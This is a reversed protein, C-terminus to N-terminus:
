HRAGKICGIWTDITEHSCAHKEKNGVIERLLSIMRGALWLINAAWLGTRGYFKAFYLARAEYFYRPRRKRQSTLTKVPSSGGRLHVVRADPCNRIRWGGAKARRCFDIDEFYMFYGECMLGIASLVEGRILVCAFSTWDPELPEDTLPLPVDYRQFLKTIIGTAAGRILESIPSPYRFCSVQPTEDPWQLRPSIVGVDSNARLEKLLLEIAGPRVLTDSNILLYAEAEIAKIGLNNGASFGGNNPSKILQVCHQWKKEAVANELYETSGDGSNNDVIIARDQEQNIEPLLSELCDLVLPATRYNIIVIALRKSAPM